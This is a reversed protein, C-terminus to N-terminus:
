LRMVAGGGYVRGMDSWVIAGGRADVSWTRQGKYIVTIAGAAGPAPIRTVRGEVSDTVYIADATVALDQLAGPLVALTRASTGDTKATMVHGHHALWYIRGGEVVFDHAYGSKVVIQPAGGQKSMRQIVAPPQVENGEKMTPQGIWYVHTADLAVSVVGVQGTAIVTVKGTKRSAKKILGAQHETWYVDVDDVALGLVMENPMAVKSILASPGGAIPISWVGAEDTYFAHTADVTLLSTMGKHIVRPTGGAAPMTSITWGGREDGANAFVVTAGDPTLAVEQPMGQRSALARHAALQTVIASAKRELSSAIRTRGGAFSVRHIEHGELALLAGGDLIAAMTYEDTHRKTAGGTKPVSVVGRGTTVIVRNADVVPRAGILLSGALRQGRGTAAKPARWLAGGALYYIHSDDIALTTSHDLGTTVVRSTGGTKALARITGTDDTWYIDTADVDLAAIEHTSKVLAGSAGVRHITTTTAAYIESGRVAIGIVASGFSGLRIPAGGSAPIAMVSSGAPYVVQKSDTAICEFGLPLVDDALLESPGGRKPAAHIATGDVWYVRQADAAIPGCPDADARAACAMMLLVISLRM